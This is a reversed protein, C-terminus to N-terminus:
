INKILLMNRSNFTFIILITKQTLIEIIQFLYSIIYGKMRFYMKKDICKNELSFYKKIM